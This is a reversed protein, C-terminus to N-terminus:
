PVCAFSGPDSSLRDLEAEIELRIAELRDLADTRADDEVKQAAVRTWL